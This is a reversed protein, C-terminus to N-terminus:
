NPPQLISQWVKIGWRGAINYINWTMYMTDQRGQVMKYLLGIYASNKKIQVCIYLASKCLTMIEGVPESEADEEHRAERRPAQGCCQEASLARRFM